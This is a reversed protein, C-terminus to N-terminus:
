RRARALLHLAPARHPRLRGPRAGPGRHGGGLSGFREVFLMAVQALVWTAIAFYAGSLRFVLWSAPCRGAVAAAALGPPRRRFTEMGHQAAVLVVYAGVGIYLQQGVSVLGVYGALANWMTAMCVLIFLNVLDNVFGQSALFPLVALIVLGAAGVAGAWTAPRRSRTVVLASPSRGPRRRRAFPKRDCCLRRRSCVTHGCPWCPWSSWTRSCPQRLRPGGPLRCHLRRGPDHGGLWRGGCRVWAASSWPPSATSSTRRARHEPSVSTYMGLALGALAVTGFALAAAVGFLHRYSAGVLQAAERDDAVARVMRGTRTRALFVQVAVLAM